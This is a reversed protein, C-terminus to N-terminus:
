SKKSKENIDEIYSLLNYKIKRAEWRNRAFKQMDTIKDKEDVIEFGLLSEIIDEMTAIGDIGGYEDMIIAIHEKKNLLIEWVKFIPDTKYVIVIDRKIDELKLGTKNEALKEFVTQRFVYGVIDENRESYIPIRSFHLFQKNKLFNELTMDKDATTVVVRPTMIESIKINKLRMLNQIIKNEKKEFIGEEVGINVLELIENRSVTQENQKNSILRTIYPFAIVMPYTIFITIKIAQATIMALKRWFRAGLTKPIIESLILVLLTLIASTLGFYGNGFVKIAQAGVGAAGITHAVTNLTLIASLPIDINQKFKIFILASSHGSKEKAKLFSLSTSLLVSEM